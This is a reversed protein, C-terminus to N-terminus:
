FSPTGWGAIATHATVLSFDHLLLLYLDEVTETLVFYICRSKINLATVLPQFSGSSHSIFRRDQRVGNRTAYHVGPKHQGSWGEGHFSM